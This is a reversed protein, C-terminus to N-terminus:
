QEKVDQVKTFLWDFKQIISDQVLEQYKSQKSFFNSISGQKMKVFIDPRIKFNM